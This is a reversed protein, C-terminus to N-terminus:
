AHDVSRAARGAVTARRSRVVRDHWQMKLAPLLEHRLRYALAAPSWRYARHFYTQRREKAWQTKYDYEGRLMDFVRNGEGIAHEIAYGMLVLGPRLKSLAPDFGGQFYYVGDRFRYFYFMAVIEGGIELCYLRLWGRNQCAHMVERHFAVYEPTSFAHEEDRGQWRLHHLAVLRDIARDLRAPDNWLFLRAGPQAEVRRRTQRLTYRRDRHQAQLYAEWSEPLL